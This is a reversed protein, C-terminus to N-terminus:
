LLPHMCAHLQESMAGSVMSRSTMTMVVRRLWRRRALVDCGVQLFMDDSLFLCAAPLRTADTPRLLPPERSREIFSLWEPPLLPLWARMM